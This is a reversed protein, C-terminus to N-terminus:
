AAWSLAKVAQTEVLYLAHRKDVGLNVIPIMIRPDYLISMSLDMPKGPRHVWFILDFLDCCAVFEQDCRMGVYMDNTKLIERCLRAKDPTNYDSIAQKWLLRHSHRDLYAAHQDPYHIGAAQLAPWVAKELAAISSSIFRLRYLKQLIEALTDKGHQAHGLILIKM